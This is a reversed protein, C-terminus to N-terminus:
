SGCFVRDGRGPLLGQPSVAAPGCARGSSAFASARVADQEPGALRRIGPANRRRREFHLLAGATVAPAKLLSFLPQSLDHSADVVSAGFSSIFIAGGTVVDQVRVDGPELPNRFGHPHQSHDSGIEETVSLRPRDRGQEPAESSREPERVGPYLVGTWSLLMSHSSRSSRECIFEFGCSNTPQILRTGCLGAHGPLQTHRTGLQLGPAQLDFRCSRHRCQAPLLLLLGTTQKDLRGITSIAPKRRRWRAPLRDYVLEGAEQHSCTVGLPKNMMVVLGSLPDLQRGAVTMRRPLDASVPIRISADLIEAQDFVIGGVRALRAIDKRAGYGM